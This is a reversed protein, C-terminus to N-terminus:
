VQNFQRASAKAHARLLELGVLPRNMVLMDLKKRDLLM